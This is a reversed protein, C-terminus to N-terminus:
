IPQVDVSDAPSEASAWLRLVLRWGVVFALGSVALVVLKWSTAAGRPALREVAAAARVSILAVAAMRAGRFLTTFLAWRPIGFGRRAAEVVFAKYPVATFPQHALGIAGHDLWRNVNEKMAPTVLPLPWQAGRRLLAIAVAGGAATGAVVAVTGSVALGPVLLVVAALATDPVVPWAFAETFSWLLLLSLIILVAPTM